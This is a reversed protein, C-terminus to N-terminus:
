KAVHLHERCGLGAFMFRPTYGDVLVPPEGQRLHKHIGLVDAMFDDDGAALLENLLMPQIRCHVATLEATFIARWREEDRGNIRDELCAIIVARVAIQDIIKLDKAILKDIFTENEKTMVDVKEPKSRPWGRAKRGEHMAEAPRGARGSWM